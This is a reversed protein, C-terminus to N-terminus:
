KVITVEHEHGIFSFILRLSKFKFDLMLTLLNHIRREDYRILFSLFFGIVWIIKKINKAFTKLEIILDFDDNICGLSMSLSLHLDSLSFM